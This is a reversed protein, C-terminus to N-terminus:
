LHSGHFSLFHSCPKMMEGHYPSDSKMMEGHYPSPWVEDDWWSLTLSWFPFGRGVTYRNGVALTSTATGLFLLAKFAWLLPGPLLVPPLHSSLMFVAILFHANGVALLDVIRNRHIWLQIKCIRHWTLSALRLPGTGHGSTRSSSSHPTERPLPLLMRINVTITVRSQSFCQIGCLQYSKFTPNWSTHIRSWHTFSNFFLSPFFATNLFVRLM